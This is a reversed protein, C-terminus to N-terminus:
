WKTRRRQVEKRLLEDASHMQKEDVEVMGNWLQATLREIERDRKRVENQWIATLQQHYLSARRMRSTEKEGKRVESALQSVLAQKQGIQARLGEISTEAEVLKEYLNEVHAEPQHDQKELQLSSVESKLSENEEILSIMAQDALDMAEHALKLDVEAADRGESAKDDEKVAGMSKDALDVAEHALRLGARYYDSELRLQSIEYDRSSLIKRLNLVEEDERSVARAEGGIMCEDRQMCNDDFGARHSHCRSAPSISFPNRIAEYFPDMKSGNRSAPNSGEWEPAMDEFEAGTYCQEEISPIAHNDGGVQHLAIADTSRYAIAASHSGLSLQNAAM